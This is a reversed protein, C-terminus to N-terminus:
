LDSRTTDAREECYGADAIRECEVCYGADSAVDEDTWLNADHGCELKDDM